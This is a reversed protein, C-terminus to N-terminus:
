PTGGLAPTVLRPPPTLDGPTAETPMVLSHNTAFKQAHEQCVPTRRTSTRGARGTIYNYRTEHTARNQCKGACKHGQGGYATQEGPEMLRLAHGWSRSRRAM